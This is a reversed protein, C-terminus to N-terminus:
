TWCSLISKTAPKAPKKDVNEFPPSHPRIPCTASIYEAAEVSPMEAIYNDVDETQEPTVPPCIHALYLRSRSANM